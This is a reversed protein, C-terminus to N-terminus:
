NRVNFFFSIQGNPVIDKSIKSLIELLPDTYGFMLDKFPRTILLSEGALKLALNVLSAEFNPKYKVYSIATMAAVNVTTIPYTEDYASM